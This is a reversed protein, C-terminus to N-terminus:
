KILWFVPIAILLGLAAVTAMGRRFEALDVPDLPIIAFGDMSCAFTMAFADNAEGDALPARGPAAAVIPLDPEPASM